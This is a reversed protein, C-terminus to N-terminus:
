SGVLYIIETNKNFKILKHANTNKQFESSLAFWILLYLVKKLYM